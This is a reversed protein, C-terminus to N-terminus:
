GKFIVTGYFAIRPWKKKYEVTDRQKLKNRQSGVKIELGNKNLSLKYVNRQIDM